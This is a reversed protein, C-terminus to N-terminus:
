EQRTSCRWRQSCVIVVRSDLIAFPSSQSELVDHMVMLFDLVSQCMNLPDGVSGLVIYRQRRKIADKVESWTIRTPNELAIGAEIHRAVGPLWGEEHVAEYIDFEDWAKVDIWSLKIICLHASISYGLGVWTMRGLAPTAIFPFVSYSTEKPKFEYLQAASSVPVPVLMKSPTQSYLVEFYEVFHSYLEWKYERTCLCECPNLKWLQFGEAGASFGFIEALDPRYIKIMNLYSKQRDKTKVEGPSVVQNFSPSPINVQSKKSADWAILQNLYHSLADSNTWFLVVDPKRLSNHIDGHFTDNPSMFVGLLKTQQTRRAYALSIANLLLTIPVYYDTDEWEQNANTLPFTDPFLRNILSHWPMEIIDGSVRLKGTSDWQQHWTAIDAAGVTIKPPEAGTDNDEDNESVNVSVGAEEADDEDEDGDSDSDGGATWEPEGVDPKSLSCVQKVGLIQEKIRRNIAIHGYHAAFLADPSTAAETTNLRQQHGSEM